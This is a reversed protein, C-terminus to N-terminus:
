KPWLKVMKIDGQDVLVPLGQDDLYSTTEKDGRKTSVENVSVSRGEIKLTKKGHFETKVLEWELTDMNFQYATEVQGAKPTDRIFWFESLSLRPGTTALSVNKVTRKGGDLIVVNAGNKDFTAIVQKNLGQDPAVTEQFKRLPSGKADYRAESNLKVVRNGSHLEVRLEVTKIGDAQIKQNLTAFGAPHGRATISLHTQGFSLSTAACAVLLTIRRKM